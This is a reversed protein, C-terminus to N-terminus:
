GESPIDFAERYFRFREIEEARDLGETELSYSHKGHAGAPRNAVYSKMRQLVEDRLNWGARQYISRITGPLDKMLDHYKVDVVRDSPIRGDARKELEQKLMYAFGFALRKASGPDDIDECRMRRLTGMLSHSSPISKLPDRHIRIVTANPYVSFLEEQLSLHSPAKLGWRTCGESGRQQLTKLFKEHFRYVPRQDSRHFEAAYSPTYHCGSWQDSQFANNTIYICENPLDGSNAHMAAYEPATDEMFVTEDHGSARLADDEISEVPHLMEWMAPCRSDNDLSLLESLISTGSRAMGVVFTPQLLPSELIGPRRKWLDHLLLRNRLARLVDHRALLRGTLTLKSEHELSHVLLEYWRRWDDDAGGFDDLGGTSEIAADIMEQPELSVLHQGGGVALAHSNLRRLWPPREPPPTTM